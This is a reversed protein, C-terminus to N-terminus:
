APYTERLYDALLDRAYRSGDLRAVETINNSRYYATYSDIIIYYTANNQVSSASISPAYIHYNSNTTNLFKSKLYYGSISGLIIANDFPLISFIDAYTVKGKSLSYPKRLSLFGGALVIDNPQTEGWQAVGAEYYLEPLLEYIASSSLASSLNAIINGYPDDECYKNYLEEIVPDDAISPNGYTANSLLKPTVTYKKTATDFSVEACSVGSNEGGGQLHYVDYKDKLIYKQHTHAEFVLDIYGDSLSADYYSYVTNGDKVTLTDTTVNNVASSSYGSGGDHISYVIFDCGEENRLRTAEAKVLSTLNAGTAFKLGSQFEGSISSLCNGIAGIIGVKVGAKEVITSAKCYDPMRNNYTVNIGLFPFEAIESNPTLAGAGWDYEHNGLTMSVFDLENMWETMLGGRNTSSEVTGQWMDGSSLLIEERVPDAYLGKVYTTFEDMGPQSSSDMFRGHLDNVALFTLQVTGGSTSSGSGGSTSSGAGGSTSGNSGGSSSNGAGGSTSGGSGGGTGSSGKDCAALAPCALLAALLLASLKTLIKKMSM